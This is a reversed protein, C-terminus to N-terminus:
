QERRSCSGDPQCEAARRALEAAVYRQRRAKEVKTPRGVRNLRINNRRAIEAVARATLPPEILQAIEQPSLGADLAYRTVQEVVAEAHPVQRGRADRQV